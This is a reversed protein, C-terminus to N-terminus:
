ARVADDVDNGMDTGCIVHLPAAAAPAAMAVTLVLAFFIKPM